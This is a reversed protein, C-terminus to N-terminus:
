QKRGRLEVNKICGHIKLLDRSVKTVVLGSGCVIVCGNKTKIMISTTSYSIVGCHNEILVSQSDMIEILAKGPIPETELDLVSIIKEFLHQRKM